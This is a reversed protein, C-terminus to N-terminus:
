KVRVHSAPKNADALQQWRCEGLLPHLTASDDDGEEPTASYHCARKHDLFERCCGSKSILIRWHSSNSTTTTYHLQPDNCALIHVHPTPLSSSPQPSTPHSGHTHVPPPTPGPLVRAHSLVRPSTARLLIVPCLTVPTPCQSPLRLCCSFIVARPSRPVRSCVLFIIPAPRLLFYPFRPAACPGESKKKLPLVPFRSVRSIGGAAAASRHARRPIVFLPPPPPPVAPPTRRGFSSVLGTM